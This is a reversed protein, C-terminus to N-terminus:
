RPRVLIQEVIARTPLDIALMVCEAVDEAQLMKERAEPPPPVPRKDLLPTNIDGPFVGCARIGNAREEANISQTLGAMGFKSAVYAPGAKANAILGADSVVNVVTGEAQKRMSPLFERVCYFAGALNVDVVADFDAASLVELSRKPVNTGAANVLAHVTGFQQLVLAAAAKVDASRGIDCPFAKAVAASDPALSITEELADRRRGFLAVNWGDALLRLAVARGVGSGAGTVVATKQIQMLLHYRM